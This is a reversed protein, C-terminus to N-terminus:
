KKLSEKIQKKLIDLAEVTESLKRKRLEDYTEGNPEFSWPLIGEMLYYADTVLQKTEEAKVIFSM